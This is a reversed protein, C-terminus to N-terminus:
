FDDPPLDFDAAATSNAEATSDSFDAPFAPASVGTAVVPAVPAIPAVPAAPAASAAPASFVATAAHTPSDAPAASPSSAQPDPPLGALERVMAEGTEWSRLARIGARAVLRRRMADPSPDDGASVLREQLHRRWIGLVLDRELDRAQWNETTGVRDRRAAIRGIFDATAPDRNQLDAVPDSAAGPVAYFADVLNRVLSNRFLTAPVLRSLRRLAEADEGAHNLLYECWAVDFADPAPDSAASAGAGGAAGSVGSAPGGMASASGGLDSAATQHFDPPVDFLEPPPEEFMAAQSQPPQVRRQSQSPRAAAAARAEERRQAAAEQRRIAEEVGALEDRVAQEPLQTLKALEQVMRAKHIPNKCQAVTQLVGQVVRGVADAGDPDREKARFHAVAFPVIGQADEILKAFEEPPHSLLFSDPDEGDPMRAVRTPIGEALLIGATRVAAKRGAGDADFLLVASDAYRHLLKAHEETFATGESAVVNAFGCAHCRIVDIQGECLVAERNPASAIARQAKDLAYLVRAKKFIDTEPSNVYKAPSRAADLVRGSFAVVRGTQDRIPFMLRGHFRDRLSSSAGPRDSLTGLGAEIMEQLTFRNKLAFADLAGFVDPDFGIGFAEAVDDPIKRKELYKRAVDAGPVDPSKLCRRFFLAAEANVQFLRKTRAASGDDPGLVVPVGCKEGLHRVADLFSMGDHRMLFKFVDGDEGCGFCHYRQRQPSVNFSPTREHHFPCCAVFAGGSRRLEIRDGIVQVIDTRSRIDEIVSEAIGPM